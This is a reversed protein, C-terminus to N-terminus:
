SAKSLNLKERKSSIKELIKNEKRNKIILFQTLSLALVTEIPVLWNDSLFLSLSTSIIIFFINALSLFLVTRAHGFGLKMILHHLHNQDPSFPSKGKIARLFFIRLTDFMPIVIISLAVTIPANFKYFSSVPLEANRKLFYISTAAVFFGIFLAGTDGMFIKAPEWNFILFGIVAGSLAFCLISYSIDGIALFWSGFAISIILTITGALGDLGDILNVANTIVIVTFVTIAYSFILPIEQIGMLGEFSVIRLDAFYCLALAAPIQVGLKVLPRVSKLDDFVGIVLIAFLSIVISAYFSSTLDWIGALLTPIFFGLFIAIGGMSPKNHSHVKREDPEDHIERKKFFRILAPICM